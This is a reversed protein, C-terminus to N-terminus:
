LEKETVTDSCSITIKEIDYNAQLNTWFVAPIDFVTQLAYAFDTPIGSDGAIVKSIHKESFGTRIALEKLNMGRDQILESLTEGPHSLM